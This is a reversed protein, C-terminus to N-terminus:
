EKKFVKLQELFVKVTMRVDADARHAKEKKVKYKEVLSGLNYYDNRSGDVLNIFLEIQRTDLLFPRNGFPYTEKSGNDDWLKELFDADFSINQGCLIKDGPSSLDEMMWNEIDVIVSAPEKYKERGEATQHSIDALVHKNIRLADIEAVEPRNCKLFWTKQREKNLHFISLEIIEHSLYNLGTTETDAVYIQFPYDM